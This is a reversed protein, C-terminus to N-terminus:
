TVLWDYQEAYERQFSMAQAMPKDNMTMALAMMDRNNVSWHTEGKNKGMELRSYPFFLEVYNSSPMSEEKIFHNKPLYAAEYDMFKPTTPLATIFGMLGYITVFNMVATKIKEM